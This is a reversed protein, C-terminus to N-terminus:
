YGGSMRIDQIGVEFKKGWSFTYKVHNSLLCMSLDGLAFKSEFHHVILM